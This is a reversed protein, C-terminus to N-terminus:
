DAAEDSSPAAPADKSIQRKLERIETVLDEIEVLIHPPPADGRGALTLELIKLRRRKEHFLKLMFDIDEDLVEWPLVKHTVDFQQTRAGKTVVGTKVEGVPQKNATTHIRASAIAEDEQYLEVIISIRGLI